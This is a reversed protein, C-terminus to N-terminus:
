TRRTPSKLLRNARALLVPLSFPKVVYDDAGLDFAALVDEERDGSDLLIIPTDAHAATSRLRQLIELGGMGPTAVELIALAIDTDLVTALATPGDTCHVLDLDTEALRAGMRAATENDDGALLIRKKATPPRRNSTLVRHGGSAKGQYLLQDAKAVIEDLSSRRDVNVVGASFSIRPAPELDEFREQELVGLVKELAKSAGAPSGDPFLIVFEDGGWRAVRDSRRLHDTLVIAVRRLVEDGLAHGHTDNIRKLGDLDILALSLPYKARQALARAREFAIAVGARNLLCTLPDHRAERSIEGTRLLKTAVTAALIDFDVPKEFFEDAGLAYCEMKIQTGHRASAVIIPTATFRPNARLRSLLNRGDEDPLVLDLLILDIDNAAVVAAAGNASEATIIKRNPGSLTSELLDLIIPDDEVILITAVEETASFAVQRMTEILAELAELLTERPAELLDDAAQSIEHFGYASGAGRLSRAIRRISGAAEEDGEALARSATELTEIRNKLSGRYYAKLEDM